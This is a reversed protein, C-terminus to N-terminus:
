RSSGDSSGSQSPTYRSGSHSSTVVSGRRGVSYDSDSSPLHPYHVSEPSHGDSVSKYDSGAYDMAQDMLDDHTPRFVSLHEGNGGTLHIINEDSEGDVSAEKKVAGSPHMGAALRALEEEWKIDDWDDEHPYHSETAALLDQDREFPGAQPYTSPIDETKIGLGDAFAKGKLDSAIIPRKIGKRQRLLNGQDWTDSPGGSIIFPYAYKSPPPPAPMFGVRARDPNITSQWGAHGAHATGGTGVGGGQWNMSKMKLNRRDSATETWPGRQQVLGYFPERLTM